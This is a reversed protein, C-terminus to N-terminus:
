KLKASIDNLKAAMRTLDSSIERLQDLVGETTPVVPATPQPTVEPVSPNIVGPDKYASGGKLNQNYLIQKLYNMQGVPEVKSNYPVQPNVASFARNYKDAAIQEPTM